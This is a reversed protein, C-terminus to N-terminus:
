KDAGPMAQVPVVGRRGRLMSALFALMSALPHGSGAGWKGTYSYRGADDRQVIVGVDGSRTRYEAVTVRSV